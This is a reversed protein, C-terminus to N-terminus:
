SPCVNYYSYVYDRGNITRPSNSPLLADVFGVGAPVFGGADQIEM